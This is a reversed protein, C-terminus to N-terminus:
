TALCGVVYATTTFPITGGSTWSLTGVSKSGPGAVYGDPLTITGTTNTVLDLLQGPRILLTMGVLLPQTLTVQYGTGGGIVTGSIGFGGDATWSGLGLLQGYNITIVTGVPLPADAAPTILYGAQTSVLGIGGLAFNDCVGDIRFAGASIPEPGTSAAAAPVAAAVLVAPTLWLAGQAIRRRSVSKGEAIAASSTSDM